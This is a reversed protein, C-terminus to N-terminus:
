NEKSVAQKNLERDHNEWFQEFKFAAESFIREEECYWDEGGM